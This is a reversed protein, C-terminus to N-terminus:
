FNFCKEHFKRAVDIFCDFDRIEHVEEFVEDVNDPDGLVKYVIEEMVTDAFQRGKRLAHIKDSNKKRNKELRAISVEHAVVADTIDGVTVSRENSKLGQFVGVIDKLINDDGFHGIESYVETSNSATVALVGINDPLLGEFMSGSECAELYFLM